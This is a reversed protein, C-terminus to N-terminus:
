KHRERNFLVIGAVIILTGGIAVNVNITQELILFALIIAALPEIIIGMLAAVHAKVRKLGFTLFLYALATFLGFMALLSINQAAGEFGSVVANPALFLTSFFLFWFATGIKHRIDAYRMIVYTAGYFMAEILALTNGTSFKVDFPNIIVVGVFAVLLCLIEKKWIKEKLFIYALIFVAFPYTYNLLAVNAVPANLFAMIFLIMSVALTFGASAYILLDRKTVHFATKDIFPVVAALIATAILARIFAIAYASMSTGILTTFIGATSMCLFSIVLAIKGKM